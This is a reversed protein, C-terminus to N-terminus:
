TYYYYYEFDSSWHHHNTTWELVLCYIIFPIFIVFIFFSIIRLQAIKRFLSKIKYDLMKNCDCQSAITYCTLCSGFYRKVNMAGKLNDRKQNTVKTTKAM